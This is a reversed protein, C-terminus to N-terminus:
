GFPASDAIFREADPIDLELVWLDPDRLRRRQIYSERSQGSEVDQPGCRTWHQNGNYDTTREVLGHVVGRDTCLILIAGAREDGRALVTAFGGAARVRRM